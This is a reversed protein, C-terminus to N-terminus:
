KNNSDTVAEMWAHTWSRESRLAASFKSTEVGRKTLTTGLAM